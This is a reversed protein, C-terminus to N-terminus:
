RSRRDKQILSQIKRVNPRVGVSDIFIKTELPTLFEVSSNIGVLNGNRELIPGGSDGPKLEIDIEFQQGGAFSSDSQLPTRISGYRSSTASAVGGHAVSHGPSISRGSGVMPYYYPTSTPVHLLALDDSSSRWVIRAQATIPNGGNAYVIFVNHGHARVLVHDATLFYGDESVPAASGGDANGPAKIVSQDVNAYRGVAGRRTIAVATLREDVIQRTSKGSTLSSSQRQSPPPTSCSVCLVCSSIAIITIKLSAM